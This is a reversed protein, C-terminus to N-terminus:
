VRHVKLVSSQSKKRSPNLIVAKQTTCAKDWQSVPISCKTMFWKPGPLRLSIMMQFVNHNNAFFSSRYLWAKHLVVPDNSPYFPVGRTFHIGDSSKSLFLSFAYKKHNMATQLLYYTHNYYVVDQHWPTYGIPLPIRCPQVGIWHKGDTSVARMLRNSRDTYWFKYQEDQYIVALSMMNQPATKMLQPVSWHIGDTTIIRYYYDKAYSPQRTKRNGTNYRYWLEMNKGHMDLHSDSYHGGIHVDKPIGTVPNHIGKPTTWNTMDNSIVICPNEYDDNGGPYPTISMWYRYGHWGNPFYLIKPHTSQNSGDYTPVLVLNYKKQLRLFDLRALGHMGNGKLVQLKASNIIKSPFNNKTISQSQTIGSALHVTPPQAQGKSLNCGSSCLVTVSILFVTLIKKLGIDKM